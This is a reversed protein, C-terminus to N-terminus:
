EFDLLYSNQRVLSTLLNLTKSFPRDPARDRHGQRYSSDEPCGSTDWSGVFELIVFRYQLHDGKQWSCGTGTRGNGERGRVMGESKNPNLWLWSAM